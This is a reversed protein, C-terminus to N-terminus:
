LTNFVMRVGGVRARRGVFIGEDGEIGGPRTHQLSLWGKARRNAGGAELWHWCVTSIESFTTTTKTRVDAQNVSGHSEDGNVCPTGKVVDNPAHARIESYRGGDILVHM